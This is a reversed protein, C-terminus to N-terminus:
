GTESIVEGCLKLMEEPTYTERGDTWYVFLAWDPYVEVVVGVYGADMSNNYEVLDGIKM